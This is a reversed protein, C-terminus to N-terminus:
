VVCFQVVPQPFFGLGTHLPFFLCFLVVHVCLLPHMILFSFLSTVKGEKHLTCVNLDSCVLAEVCVVSDFKQSIM